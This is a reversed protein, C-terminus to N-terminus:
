ALGQGGLSLRNLMELDQWHTFQCTWVTNHTTLYSSLKHSHTHITHPQSRLTHTHTRFANQPNCTFLALVLFLCKPPGLTHLYILCIPDFLPHAVHGKPPELHLWDILWDIAFCLLWHYGCLLGLPVWFCASCGVFLLHGWGLDCGLPVGITLVGFGLAIVITDGELSVGIYSKWTLLPFLCHKDDKFSLVRIAKWTKERFISLGMAAIDHLTHLMFCAELESFLNTHSQWIATEKKNRDM